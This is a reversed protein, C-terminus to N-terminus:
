RDHQPEQAFVMTAAATAAGPVCIFTLLGGFVRTVAQPEDAGYLWVLLSVLSWIGIGAAFSAVTIAAAYNAGRKWVSQDIM